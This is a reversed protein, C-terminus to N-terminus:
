GALRPYIIGRPPVVLDSLKIGYTALRRRARGIDWVAALSALLQLVERGAAVAEDMRGDAALLVAVDELTAALEPMRHVRRYQAAALLAPHVDGTILAQCRADAAYARAPVQEKRAEAACIEAAQEAIDRRGTQLALRIIDPLWQHRLMMPAYAPQLLPALQALAEAPRDQQEAALAGAVLLFDCSERESASAPLGEAAALHSLAVDKMDRHGSIMAAVGHLLMMVAGPERMGHFTIGPADDTVASVEALAEDWRGLWFAQVATSVQLGAPLHHGAAFAAAERLNRQASDLRDLNQLSFMRNDLLDFYMSALEPQERVIGMAQEIHGLAAEHDRRISGTLWMTQLAFAAEYPQGAATAEAYVQQAREEAADLDDISGRRFNALLVRHRTRWLEPVAPDDVADILLAIAGPSDGRRYRMAALLQRMEARDAPDTAM